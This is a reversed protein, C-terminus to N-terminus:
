RPEDGLHRLLAAYQRPTLYSPNSGAPMRLVEADAFAADALLAARPVPAPLRRLDVDVADGGGGPQAAAGSAVVGLAHVGPEHRGPVPRGSLWLLCPQGPTLLGLRYSPRVCRSLTRTAGAEWGPAVQGLPVASKLVWCAVDAPSLRPRAPM